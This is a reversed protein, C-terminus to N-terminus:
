YKPKSNSNKPSAERQERAKMARELFEKPVADGPVLEAANRIHRIAGDFDGSQQLAVGLALQAPAFQADAQVSQHYAEIAPQVAGQRQLLLGIAYHAQAYDSKLRAAARYNKLANDFDGTSELASALAYRALADDPFDAVTQQFLDLAARTEGQRQLISALNLRPRSLDPRDRILQRYAAIAGVLDGHAVLEDARTAENRVIVEQKEVEALIPDPFGNAHDPVNPTRDTGPLPSPIGTLRFKVRALERQAEINAPAIELAQDLLKQASPLDGRAAATRGLGIWAHPLHPALEQLRRFQVEAEGVRNLRMLVLAWRYRLPAYEPDVQAARSYANHAGELSEQEQLVAELYVWRIERPNLEIAKGFCGRAETHWHHAMLVIGLKGWSMDSKRERRIQDSLSSVVAVVRPHARSLDPVPIDGAPRRWYYSGISFLVGCTGLLLVIGLFYRSHFRFM